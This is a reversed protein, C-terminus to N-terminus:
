MLKLPNLIIRRDQNAFWPWHQPPEENHRIERGPTERPTM